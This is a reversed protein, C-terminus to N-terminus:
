PYQMNVTVAGTPGSKWTVALAPLAKSVFRVERKRLVLNLLQGIKFSKEESGNM